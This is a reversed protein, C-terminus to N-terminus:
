SYSANYAGIVWWASQVWVLHVMSGVGSFTITGSGGTWSAATLAVQLSYSASYGTVLIVKRQGVHTANGLNLVTAGGTNSITTLPKTISLNGGNDSSTFSENGLHFGGNLYASENFQVVGSTGIVVADNSTSFSGSGNKIHFGDRTSENGITWKATGGEYFEVAADSSANADIKVRADSGSVKVDGIVHLTTDPSTTGIGVKDQDADVFLTNSDLNVDDDGSGLDINGDVALSGTIEANAGYTTPM